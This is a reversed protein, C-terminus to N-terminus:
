FRLVVAFPIGVFGGVADSQLFMTWRAGTQFRFFSGPSFTFVPGVAAYGLWTLGDERKTWKGGRRVIDTRVGGGQVSLGAEVWENRFPAYEV